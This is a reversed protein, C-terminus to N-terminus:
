CIRTSLFCIENLFKYELTVYFGSAYIYVYFEMVIKWSNLLCFDNPFNWQLKTQGCRDRENHKIQTVNWHPQVLLPRKPIKGLFHISNQNDIPFKHALLPSRRGFSISFAISFINLLEGPEPYIMGLQWM